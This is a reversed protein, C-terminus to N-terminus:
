AGIEELERAAAESQRKRQVKGVAPNVTRPANQAALFRAVEEESTYLFHGSRAVTLKVGNVGHNKWRRLTNRCPHGPFLRGAESFLILTESLIDVQM